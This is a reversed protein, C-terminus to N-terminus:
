VKCRSPVTLFEHDVEDRGLKKVITRKLCNELDEANFWPKDQYAGIYKFLNGWFGTQRTVVAEPFIEKSMEIYADICEDLSMELRGLM